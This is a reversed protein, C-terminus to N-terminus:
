CSSSRWSGAKDLINDLKVELDLYNFRATVKPIPFEIDISLYRSVQDVIECPRATSSEMFVIDDVSKCSDNNSTPFVISILRPLETREVSMVSDVEEISPLRGLVKIFENCILERKVFIIFQDVRHGGFGKKSIVFECKDVQAEVPLVFDAPSFQQYGIMSMMCRERKRRSGTEHFHLLGLNLKQTKGGTVQAHHNGQSIAVFADSRVILKDWGQDYFKTISVAPRTHKFSVYDASTDDAVSGLFCSYRVISVDDAVDTLLSILKSKDMNHDGPLFMFEDTDLPIVFKYGAKHRHIADTVISAMSMMGRDADVEIIVGKEKYIEYIDLVRADTSGNDVVVINEYGFLSGYFELFDDILDYEDKSLVIVKALKMDSM